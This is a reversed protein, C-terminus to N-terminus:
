IALEVLLNKTEPDFIEVKTIKGDRRIDNQFYSAVAEALNKLCYDNIAPLTWTSTKQWDIHELTDGEHYLNTTKKLYQVVGLEAPWVISVRSVITITKM